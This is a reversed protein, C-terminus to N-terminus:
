KRRLGYIKRICDRGRYTNRTKDTCLINMEGFTQIASLRKVITKNKSMEIAGNALTSTMIVPLMEPTLGVAITIAFILAEWWNGKTFFNIAFIVPIMIVMFKILLKSVSDVGREFSNQESTSYISKAMNGFYTNSGTALVVATARGSVINTGTFGINSLHTLEADKERLTSFKEVPNSEGTLSAQDIFLDKTELFRVDGPIMDGSSLKLIDGPVIDEVDVTNPLEDRIVDIKNTILRKLKQAAKNSNTQQFFSIMASIFVTSIILTFTLYDKNTSFVVDTFFTVIAVIILVINFPNIFAEKLRKFTTNNNNIDIINKGYEEQKEDIIICSLGNESTDFEHLIEDNNMQSYKKLNQEIENIKDTNM